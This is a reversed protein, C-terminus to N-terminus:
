KQCDDNRKHWPNRLGPMISIKPWIIKQQPFHGTCSTIVLFMELCQWIDGQHPFDNRPTTESKWRTNNESQKLVEQLM